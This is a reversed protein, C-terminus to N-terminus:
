GEKISVKVGITAEMTEVQTEPNVKRTVNLHVVRSHYPLLEFLQILKMTARADGSIGFEVFLDDFGPEKTVEETLQRTALTLNLDKALSDVLSLFSVAGDEGELVLSNLREREAATEDLEIKLKSYESKLYYHDKLSKLDTILKKGHQNISTFSYLAVSGAVTVLIISFILVKITSRSRM